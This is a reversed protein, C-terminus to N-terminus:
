LRTTTAFPKDATGPNDDSAAPHERAVHFVRQYHTRDDWFPFPTGDPLLVPETNM